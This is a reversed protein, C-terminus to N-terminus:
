PRSDMCLILEMTYMNLIINIYHTIFHTFHKIKSNTKTQTLNPVFLVTRM